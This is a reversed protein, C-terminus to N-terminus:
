LSMKKEYINLHKDGELLQKKLDLNKVEKTTTMLDSYIM